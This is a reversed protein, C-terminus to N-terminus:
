LFSCLCRSVLGLLTSVVCGRTQSGLAGDGRLVYLVHVTLRVEAKKERRGAEQKPTQNSVAGFSATRGRRMSSPDRHRSGAGDAEEDSTTDEVHKHKDSRLSTRRRRRVASPPPLFTASILLATQHLALSTFTSAMYHRCCLPFFSIYASLSVCLCLSASRSVCMTCVCVCACLSHSVPFGCSRGRAPAQFCFLM